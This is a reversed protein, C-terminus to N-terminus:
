EGYEKIQIIAGPAENPGAWQKSAHLEIVYRDDTIVGADTLADLIGRSLKDVDGVTPAVPYQSRTTRPKRIYFWVSVRYPPTLPGLLGVRDGEASAAATVIKRWPKLRQSSERMGYRTRVKSGQPAAVGEVHVTFTDASVTCVRETPQIARCRAPHSVM